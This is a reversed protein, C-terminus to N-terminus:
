HSNSYRRHLSFIMPADQRSDFSIDLRLEPTKEVSMMPQWESTAKGTDGARAISSL